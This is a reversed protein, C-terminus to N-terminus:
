CSGLCITNCVSFFVEIDILILISGPNRGILMRQVKNVKATQTVLLAQIEENLKKEEREKTTQM